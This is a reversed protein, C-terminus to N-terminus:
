AAYRALAAAPAHPHCRHGRCLPCDRRCVRERALSARYLGMQRVITHLTAHPNIVWADGLEAAREVGRDNNAAM